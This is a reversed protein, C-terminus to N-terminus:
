AAPARGSAPVRLRRPLLISLWGIALLNVAISIQFASTTKVMISEKKSTNPEAGAIPVLTNRIEERVDPSWSRDM